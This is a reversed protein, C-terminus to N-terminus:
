LRALRARNADFMPTNGSGYNNVVVPKQTRNSLVGALKSFDLGSRKFGQQIADVVAQDSRMVNAAIVQELAHNSIIKGPVHPTFSHQGNVGLLKTSGDAGQFLETGQEGVTYTNGASVGGGSVRFGDNSGGSDRANQSAVAAIELELELEREKNKIRQDDAKQQTEITEMQIKQLELTAEIQEGILDVQSQASEIAAESASIAGEAAAIADQDGSEIARGLAAQSEALSVEARARTVEAEAQTARLRMIEIQQEIELRKIDAEQQKDLADKEADLIKLQIQARQEDAETSTIDGLAEGRNVDIIEGELRATRLDSQAAVLGAEAEILSKRQELIDVQRELAKERQQAIENALKEEIDYEAQLLELGLQQLDNRSEALSLEDSANIVGQEELETVFALQESYREQLDSLQQKSELLDAAVKTEETGYQLALRAGQVAIDKGAKQAKKIDSQIQLETNLIDLRTQGLKNTERTLILEENANLVGSARLSEVYELQSTYTAQLDNLENQSAVVEARRQQSETGYKLELLAEERALSRTKVSEELLQQEIRLAEARQQATNELDLEVKQQEHTADLTEERLELIANQAKATERLAKEQEEITSNNLLDLERRAQLIELEAQAAAQTDGSSMAIRMNAQAASLAQSAKMKAIEQELKLAQLAYKEQEITYKLQLKDAELQQRDAKQQLELQKQKLDQLHQEQNERERSLEIANKLGDSELGLREAIVDRRSADVDKLLEVADIEYQIRAQEVNGYALALSYQAQLAESRANDLDSQIQALEAAIQVLEAKTQIEDIDGQILEAKLDVQRQLEAQRELELSALEAMIEVQREMSQLLENEISAKQNPEVGSALLANLRDIQDKELQFQERLLVEKNKLRKQEEVEIDLTGDIYAQRALMQRSLEAKRYQKDLEDLKKSTIDIERQVTEEQLQITLEAVARRDELIAGEANSLIEQRAASVEKSVVVGNNMDAEIKTVVAKNLELRKKAANLESETIKSDADEKSIVGSAALEILKIENEIQAETLDKQTSGFKLLYQEVEKTVKIRAENLKNLNNLLFAQEAILRNEVSLAEPNTERQELLKNLKDVGGALGELRRQESDIEAKDLIGGNAFKAQLNDFKSGINALADSADISAQNVGNLANAFMKAAPAAVTALLAGAVVIAMIPNAILAASVSKIIATFGAGLIALAGALGTAGASAATMWAAVKSFIALNAIQTSLGTVNVNLLLLATNAATVSKVFSIVALGALGIALVFAGKFLNAVLYANDGLWQMAKAFNDLSKVAFPLVIEGIGLQLQIIANKVRNISKTFTSEPVTLGEKLRKSFYPLADLSNLLGSSVYKIMDGSTVKYAERIEVSTGVLNRNLDEIPILGDDVMDQVAKTMAQMSQPVREGLQQRLEEMSVTGKSAMQTIANFAGETDAQSLNMASFTESLDGYIELSKAEASTGKVAATFSSFGAATDEFSTGLRQSMVYMQDLAAEGDGVGYELLRQLDNFRQTVEFTSAAIEQLKDSLADAANLFLMGKLFEFLAEKASELASGFTPPIFDLPPIAQITNGVEIVAQDVANLSQGTYEAFVDSSLGAEIFLRKIEILSKRIVEFDKESIGAELIELQESTRVNIRSAVEPTRTREASEKIQGSISEQNASVSVAREAILAKYIRDPLKLLDQIPLNKLAEIDFPKNLRDKINQLELSIEDNIDYSIPNRELEKLRNVIAQEFEAQRGSAPDDLGSLYDSIKQAARLQFTYADRELKILKEAEEANQTIARVSAQAANEIRDVEVGIPTLLPTKLAGEIDLKGFEFQLAHRLEHVLSGITEPTLVGEKLQKYAEPSLEITNDEPRYAAQVGLGLDAQVVNPTSLKGEYKSFSAVLKTIYQLLTKSSAVFESSGSVGISAGEASQALRTSQKVTQRLEAKNVTSQVQKMRHDLESQLNDFVLRYGQVVKTLKKDTALQQVTMLVLKADQLSKAIAKDSTEVGEVVAQVQSRLDSALQKLEQKVSATPLQLLENSFSQLESSLQSPIREVLTFLNNDFSKLLQSIKGAKSKSTLEGVKLTAALRELEGVTMLALQKRVKNAEKDFDAQTPDKLSDEWSADIAAKDYRKSEFDLSGISDGVKEIFDPLQNIDTELQKIASSVTNFTLQQETVKLAKFRQDLDAVIANLPQQLKELTAGASEYNESYIDANVDQVVKRISAFRKIFVDLAEVAKEPNISKLQSVYELAQKQTREFVNKFSELATEANSIQNIDNLGQKIEEAIKSAERAQFVYADVEKKRIDKEIVKIQESPVNAAKAQAIYGKVSNDINNTFPLVEQKTPKVAQLESKFTEQLYHRLEHTMTSIADDLDGALAKEITEKSLLVENTNAIFGGKGGSPLTKQLNLTPTVKGELSVNSAKAVRTLVQNFVEELQNSTQGVPSLKQSTPTVKTSKSLENSQSILFQLDSNLQRQMLIASTLEKNQESLKDTYEKRLSAVIANQKAQVMPANINFAAQLEKLLTDKQTEPLEINSLEKKIAQLRTWEKAAEPIMSLYDVMKDIESFINVQTEAFQKFEPTKSEVASAIKQQETQIAQNVLRGQQIKQSQQQKLQAQTQAQIAPVEFATGLVAVKGLAERQKQLKNLQSILEGYKVKLVEIDNSDTTDIALSRVARLSKGVKQIQANVAEIEKRAVRGEEVWVKANAQAGSMLDTKRSTAKESTKAQAISLEVSGPRLGLSDVITNGVGATIQKVVMPLTNFSKSFSSSVKEALLDYSGFVSKINSELISSFASGIAQGVPLGVAEFAGTLIKSIPYVAAGLVLGLGSFAGSVTGSLTEVFSNLTSSLSEIISPIQAQKFGQEIAKTLSNSGSNLSGELSLKLSPELSSVAKQIAGSDVGFEIKTAKFSKLQQDVVKTNIEAPIDLTKRQMTKHVAKLNTEFQVPDLLIRLKLNLDAASEM